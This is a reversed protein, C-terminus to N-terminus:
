QTAPVVYPSDVKQIRGQAALVQYMMAVVEARTAPQTPRLQTPDPYNVVLGTAAAAAVKNRAWDSLTNSDVFLSLADQSNPADQVGLGSALTVMVQERTVLQDPRFDGEPFGQMYGTGVVKDIASKGWYDPAIDTFNRSPQTSSSALAANLLAAFEARTMPQEPKFVGEPFNAVIGNTYLGAIFPYAWYTPPVDAMNVSPSPTEEPQTASSNPVATAPTPPAINTTPQRTALGQNSNEPVPVPLLVTDNPENPEESRPDRNTGPDAINGSTDGETVPETPRPTEVTPGVASLLSLNQWGGSRTLGWALISGIALFAVILAVFEDFNLSASGSSEPRTRDRRQDGPEPSMVM